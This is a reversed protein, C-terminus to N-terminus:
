QGLGTPVPVPHTESTDNCQTKIKCILLRLSLPTPADPRYASLPHLRASIHLTFQTFVWTQGIGFATVVGPLSSYSLFDKEEENLRSM